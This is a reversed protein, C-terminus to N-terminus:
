FTDVFQGRNPLTLSMKLLIERSQTRGRREILAVLLKFLLTFVRWTFAPTARRLSGPEPSDIQRRAVRRVGIQGHAFPGPNM